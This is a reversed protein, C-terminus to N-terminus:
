FAIRRGRCTALLAVAIPLLFLEDGTCLRSKSQCSCKAPGIADDVCDLCNVGALAQVSQQRSPLSLESLGLMAALTCGVLIVIAGRFWPLAPSVTLTDFDFDDFAPARLPPNM